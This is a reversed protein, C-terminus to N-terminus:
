PLTSLVLWGVPRPLSQEAQGASPAHLDASCDQRFGLLENRGHSAGKVGSTAVRFPLVASM